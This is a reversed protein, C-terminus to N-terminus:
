GPVAASMGTSPVAKTMTPPPVARMTPVLAGVRGLRRSAIRMGRQTPRM